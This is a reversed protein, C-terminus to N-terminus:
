EVEYPKEVGFFYIFFKFIKLFILFIYTNKNEHIGSSINWDNM